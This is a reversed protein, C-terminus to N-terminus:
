GGGGGWMGYLGGRLGIEAGAAHRNPHSPHLCEDALEEVLVRQTVKAFQLWHQNRGQMQTSTGSREQTPATLGQLLLTQLRQRLALM